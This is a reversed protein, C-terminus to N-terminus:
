MLAALAAAMEEEPTTERNEASGMRSKAEQLLREAAKVSAEDVDMNNKEGAECENLDSQIKAIVAQVQSRTTAAALMRSLKGANIGVCGSSKETEDEENEAQESEDEQEKVPEESNEEEIDACQEQDSLLEEDAYRDELEDTLTEHEQPQIERENESISEIYREYGEKSISVEDCENLRSYQATKEDTNEKKLKSNGSIKAYSGYVGYDGTVKLNM